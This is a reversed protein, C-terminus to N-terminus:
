ASNEASETKEKGIIFLVTYATNQYESSQGPGFVIRASYDIAPQHVEAKEVLDHLTFEKIDAYVKENEGQVWIVGSEGNLEKFQTILSSTAEEKTKVLRNHMSSYLYKFNDKDSYSKESVQDFKRAKMMMSYPLNFHMYQVEIQPALEPQDTLLMRWDPDQNLSAVVSECDDWCCDTFYWNNNLNVANWAHGPDDETSTTWRQEDVKWLEGFVAPAQIGAKDCIYQFTWAYGDCVAKGSILAALSHSHPASLDYTYNTIIWDHIYREAEEPKMGKTQDAVFQARNDIESYVAEWDEHSMNFVPEVAVIERIGNEEEVYYSCSYLYYNAFEPYDLMFSYYAKTFTEESVSKELRVTDMHIVTDYVAEYVMKEKTNELQSYYFRSEDPSSVLTNASSSQSSTSENEKSDNQTDEDETQDPLEDAPKEQPKKLVTTDFLDIFDFEGPKLRLFNVTDMATPNVASCGSLILATLIAATLKKLRM